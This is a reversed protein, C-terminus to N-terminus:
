LSYHSCLIYEPQTLHMTSSSVHVMYSCCSMDLFLHSNPRNPIITLYIDVHMAHMISITENPVIRIMRFQMRLKSILFRPLCFRDRAVALLRRGLNEVSWIGLYVEKDPIDGSVFGHAIQSQMHYARSLDM